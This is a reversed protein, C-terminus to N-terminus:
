KRAFDFPNAKERADQMKERVLNAFIISGVAFLLLVFASAAPAGDTGRFVLKLLRITIIVGAAIAYGKRLALIDSWGHSINEAKLAGACKSLYIFTVISIAILGAFLATDLM